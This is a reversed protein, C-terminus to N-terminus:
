LKAKIEGITTPTFYMDREIHLGMKLRTNSIESLSSYGLEPFQVGTVLGYLTDEGNFETVYLTWSGVPSFFKVYAIAEDGKGDQDYLAPLDKRNKATLLKM